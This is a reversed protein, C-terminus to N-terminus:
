DVRYYVMTGFPNTLLDKVFDQDQAAEDAADAAASGPALAATPDSGTTTTAPTSQNWQTAQRMDVVAHIRVRAERQLGPVVGEAYISFVKSETRFLRRGARGRTQTADFEIPAVGMGTFIASIMANKGSLTNKFSTASTFIPAGRLLTRILGFTQLFAAAQLPDTCVPTLPKAVSCALTWVVAAPATNVNAGIDQGWITLLRKRPNNPEPDVLTAWRDDDMGRVLRVEELSDFPANKRIYGLGLVQYINDESGASSTPDVCNTLIEDPDAWDLLSSCLTFADSQQGDGDPTEFMIQNEPRALWTMLQQVLPKPTIGGAAGATNINIKSDEDVITVEFYGGGPIGINKATSIDVGVKSGFVTARDAGNFAGLMMDSFEWMPVQPARRTGLLQQLMIGIIGAGAKVRLPRESAILMRSLNVASKAYYEAKLRDREALAGAVASTTDTQLETLFVTLITIAGLVMILAIGRERRRKRARELAGRVRAASPSKPKKRRPKQKKM